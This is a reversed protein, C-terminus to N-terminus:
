QGGNADAIHADLVAVAEALTDFGGYGLGCACEAGSGGDGGGTWGGTQYHAPIGPVYAACFNRHPGGDLKGCCEHVVHGDAVQVVGAPPASPEVRVMTDARLTSSEPGYDAERFVVFVWDEGRRNTYPDVFRVAVATQTGPMVGAAIRDGRVLDSAAKEPPVKIDTM